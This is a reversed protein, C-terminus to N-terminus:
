PRGREIRERVARIEKEMRELESSIKKKFSATKVYALNIEVNLRAARFGAEYFLAAELLDSYLWRSTRAREPVALRAGWHALRCMELPVLAAKQLAKEYRTGQRDEKKFKSLEFFAAVDRDLLALLSASIKSAPEITGISSGDRKLNLRAVMETLAAAEAIVIAAAAGGGPAPESSGLKKLFSSVPLSAYKPM